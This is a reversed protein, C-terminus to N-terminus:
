HHKKWWLMAVTNAFYEGEYFGITEGKLVFEYAHGLEHPLYFGNFFLGFFKKAKRKVVLLKLMFNNKQATTIQVIFLLALIFKTKM